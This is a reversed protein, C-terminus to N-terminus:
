GKDIATMARFARKGLQQFTKRSLLIALDMKIGLTHLAERQSLRAVRTRPVGPDDKPVLNRGDGTGM